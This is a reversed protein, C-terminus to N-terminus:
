KPVQPLQRRDALASTVGKAKGPDMAALIAATKVEKMREVVDLLVPMDLEEFIRAAEKPKMTEYIRVLSEIQQSKKEDGMRMLKQIDTRVKDLEQLKQDIRKEAASLLAERQEVDKTRKEIEARRTALHQFLETDVPGLRDAGAAPQAPQAAGAAPAASGPPPAAANQATNQAVTTAPRQIDNRVKDLENLKQDVRKEAASFVADRQDAEKGRRDLDNRREGLQQMQAPTPAPSAPSPGQALTSPFEPLRPDHTAIRWVDGVRVGLMLVAAFITLPLLRVRANVLRAHLRAALSPRRPPKRAGQKKRVAPKAGTQSAGVPKVMAPNAVAPMQVPANPGRFAAAAAARAAPTVTRGAADFAATPRPTADPRPPFDSQAPDSM